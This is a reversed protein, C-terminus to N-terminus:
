QQCLGGMKALEFPGVYRDDETLKLLPIVPPRFTLYKTFVKEDCIDLTHVASARDNHYNVLKCNLIDFIVNRFNTRNKWVKIEYLIVRSKAFPPTLNYQISTVKYKM